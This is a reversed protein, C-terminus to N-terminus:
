KISDQELTLLAVQNFIWFLRQEAERFHSWVKGVRSYNCPPQVALRLTVLWTVEQDDVKLISAM